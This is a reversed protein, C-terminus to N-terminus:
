LCKAGIVIENVTEVFVGCAKQNDSFSCLRAVRQDLEKFLSENVLAIQCNDIAHHFLPAPLPPAKEGFLSGILPLRNPARARM